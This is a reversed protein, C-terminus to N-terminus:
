GPIKWLMRASLDTLQPLGTHGGPLEERVEQRWGVGGM